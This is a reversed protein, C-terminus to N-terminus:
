RSVGEILQVLRQYSHVRDFEEEACRRANEGMERRLAEGKVLRELADAMANADGNPCNIGMRYKEVLTRYELSEQTNIVPLGSAAYDAHKNIISAASKSVIPNVVMDCACLWGCMQAYPLRGTFWVDVGTKEAYQAFEAKRAGDGMVIFRPPTVGREKLFRLADMVLKLDYSAALSGCYGLWLKTEPSAILNPLRSGSFAFTITHWKPLPALIEADMPPFHTSVEM